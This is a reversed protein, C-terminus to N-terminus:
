QEKETMRKDAANMQEYLLHLIENLQKQQDSTLNDLVRRLYDRREDIVEKIIERGKDLTQIRVVRRDKQDRTRKILENHEMRDIFDTTTSFALGIKKSLEGITLNEQEAIWQLAIFQTHTIPYNTLIKRGNKKVMAAIFRLKKEAREIFLNNAEDKVIKCRM